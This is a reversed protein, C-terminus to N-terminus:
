RLSYGGLSTAIWTGLIIWMAIITDAGKTICWRIGTCHPSSVIIPSAVFGIINSPTCYIVYLHSAIYHIFIWLVYISSVKWTNRIFIKITRAYHKDYNGDVNENVNVGNSIDHDLQQQM